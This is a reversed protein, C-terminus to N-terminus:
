LNNYIISFPIRTETDLDSDVTTLYIMDFEFNNNQYVTNLKDFEINNAFMNGSSNNKLNLVNSPVISMNTDTYGYTTEVNLYKYLYVITSLPKFFGDLNNAEKDKQFSAIVITEPIQGNNIANLKIPPSSKTIIENGTPSEFVRKISFQIQGFYKNNITKSVDDNYTGFDFYMYNEPYKYSNVLVNYTPYDYVPPLDDIYYDKSRIIRYVKGEVKDNYVKYSIFKKVIRNMMYLSVICMKTETVYYDKYKTDLKKTPDENIGVFDIHLSVTSDSKSNAIMYTGMINTIDFEMTTDENNQPYNVMVTGLDGNSNTAVLGSNMISTQNINITMLYNVNHNADVTSYMSTWTGNAINTITNINNELNKKIGEMKNSINSFSEFTKILKDNYKMNILGYVIIICFLIILIPYIVDSLM